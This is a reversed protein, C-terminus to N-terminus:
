NLTSLVEKYHGDVKVQPFIKKIMGKSDIVFTWRSATKWKDNYVGYAKSISGDVDALLTFPLHYKRKFAKHSEASDVSVGLIVANKGIFTPLNDRFSCAEVTCGPTDDKPYFYLVVDKGLFDSLRVTRGDDTKAAFDPAAQGESLSMSAEAAPMPIKGFVSYLGGYFSELVRSVISRKETM